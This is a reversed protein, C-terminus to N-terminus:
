WLTQVDPFNRIRQDSTLLPMGSIRATAVIIQDAPDKHFGRLLTSEVAIEPSLDAISIQQENVSRTMWELVPISFGIRKREVLKALEWLSISSIWKRKSEKIARIARTSLSNRDDLSVWIWVHTDLLIDSM